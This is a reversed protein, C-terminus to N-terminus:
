LKAGDHLPMEAQIQHFLDHDLKKYVTDKPGMFYIPDNIISVDYSEKQLDKKMLKYTGTLKLEQILRIFLPRAYKPLKQRIENALKVLDVSNEPDSFPFFTLKQKHITGFNLL